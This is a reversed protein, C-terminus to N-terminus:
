RLRDPDEWFMTTGMMKGTTTLGEGMGTDIITIWVWMKWTTTTRRMQWVPIEAKLSRWSPRSWSWEVALWVVYKLTYVTLMIFIYYKNFYREIIWAIANSESVSADCHEAARLAWDVPFGMGILNEILLQRRAELEPSSTSAQQQRGFFNEHSEQTSETGSVDNEDTEDTVTGASVTPAAIL